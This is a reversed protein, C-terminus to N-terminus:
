VGVRAFCVGRPTPLYLPAVLVGDTTLKDLYGRVPHHPGTDHFGVVTRSHMWPLYRLLEDHRHHADSDFWAFDVMESPMWGLSSGQVVEVPLGECRARSQQALALDVEITVLRGQGNAVLARGIAHATNGIHTGTEVVFSPQLGIVMAAVLVTVEDETAYADTAHWREPFPCEARQQTWTSEVPM